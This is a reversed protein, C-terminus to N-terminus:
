NLSKIGGAAKTKLSPFYCSIGAISSTGPSITSIILPWFIGASILIIYLLSIFTLLADSVPSDFSSSLTGSSLSLFIYSLLFTPNKPVAQTFPVPIPITILVPSLVTIPYIALKADSASAPSVGIAISISWKILNTDIIAIEAPTNKKMTFKIYPYPITVLIAKIIPM